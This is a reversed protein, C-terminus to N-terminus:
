DSDLFESLTILFFVNHEEPILLMSSDEQRTSLPESVSALCFGPSILSLTRLVINLERFGAAGM